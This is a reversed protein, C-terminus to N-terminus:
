APTIGEYVPIVATINDDDEYLDQTQQNLEAVAEQYGSGDNPAVYSFFVVKGPSTADDYFVDIEWNYSVNPVNTPSSVFISTSGPILSGSTVTITKSGTARPVWTFSTTGNTIVPTYTEGDLTISFVATYGTAVNGDVDRATVTVTVSSGFTIAYPTASVTLYVAPGPQVNLTYSQTTSIVKSNSNDIAQISFNYTGPKIPTGSLEGSASNLLLGPPLHGTIQFEYNGSGGSASITGSYPVGDTGGSELALTVDLYVRVGNSSGKVSKNSTDNAMLNMPAATAKDLTITTTAEGNSLKVVPPSTYVAQGDSSSLTVIDNCSTAVNGYQDKATINIGFGSTAIATSPGSLALSAAAAPAVTISSSSGKVAGASASLSVAGSVNTPTVTAKQTSLTATTTGNNWPGLKLLSVPAGDSRTFAVFPSSYNTVANGYQDTAALTVNFPAGATVSSEQPTVVFTTAPGPNVDIPNSSGTVGGGFTLTVSPVPSSPAPAKHLTVDFALPGNPWDLFLAYPTDGDSATVRPIGPSNKVLNGYRDEATLTVLFPKGATVPSTPGNVIFSSAAAPNITLTYSQRGTLSPISADTAQIAFTYTGAATPAGSLVGASSLSLGLHQLLTQSTSTAQFSYNGEGGTAGITASYSQGATVAPLTSPTLTLQHAPNITLTYSASITDGISDDVSVSVPFTGSQTPM